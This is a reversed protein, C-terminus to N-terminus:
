KKSYRYCHKDAHPGTGEVALGQGHCGFELLVAFISKYLRAHVSTGGIATFIHLAHHLCCGLFGELTAPKKWQPWNRPVLLISHLGTLSVAETPWFNAGILRVNYILVRLCKFIDPSEVPVKYTKWSWFGKQVSEINFNVYSRSWIQSAGEFPSDLTAFFANEGFKAQSVSKEIFRHQM